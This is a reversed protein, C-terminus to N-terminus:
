SRDIRLSLTAEYQRMASLQQALLAQDISALGNFVPNSRIFATLKESRDRLEALEGEMREIHPAKTM